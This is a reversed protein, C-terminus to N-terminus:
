ESSLSSLKLLAFSELNKQRWAVECACLTHSPGPFQPHATGDELGGSPRQCPYPFRSVTVWLTLANKNTTKEKAIM